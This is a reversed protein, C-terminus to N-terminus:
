EKNKENQAERTKEKAAKLFNISENFSKQFDPNLFKMTQTRRNEWFDWSLQWGPVLRSIRPKKLKPLTVIGLDCDNSDMNRTIQFVEKNKVNITMITSRCVGDAQSIVESDTWSIVSYTEKNLHLNYSSDVYSNENEIKPIGIEVTIVDCFGQPKHCNIQSHNIPYFVKEGEIIWTGEATVSVSHSYVRLEDGTTPLYVPTDTFRTSRRNLEAFQSITLEGTQAQGIDHQFRKIAERVKSEPMPDFYMLKALSSSVSLEMVRALGEKGFHRFSDLMPLEDRVEKPLKEFEEKSMKSIDPLKEHTQGM